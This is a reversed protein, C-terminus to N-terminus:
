AKWTKKDIYKKNFEM